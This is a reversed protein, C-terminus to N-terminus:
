GTERPLAEVDCDYVAIPGQRADVMAMRESELEDSLITGPDNALNRARQRGQTHANPIQAGDDLTCGHRPLWEEPGLGLECARRVDLELRNALREFPQRVVHHDVDREITSAPM